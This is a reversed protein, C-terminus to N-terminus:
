ELKVTYVASDTVESGKVTLANSTAKLTNGLYWKVTGYACVGNSAITQEVGNAFVHATLVTTDTSSKFVNGNSATITMTIADGSQKAVAYDTETKGDSYTTVTKTWLYKGDAVAPISTLWTGTPATTQSTGEQYTVETSLVVSSTGISFNTAVIDIDGSVPDFMISGNKGRMKVTGDAYVEFPSGNIGHTAGDGVGIGTTSIYVGATPDNIATKKSHISSSDITFGGITAGFAELDAVKIKAAEITKEQIVAGDLKNKAEENLATIVSRKGTENDVLILRETELTGTTIKDASLADIKANTIAADAIKATNVAGDHITASTIAGEKIKATSIQADAIKAETIQADGIKASTIAADKIKATEITANAIKGNTIQADAIMATKISASKINALDIDAKEAVLEEVEARGIYANDLNAFKADLKEVEANVADLDKIKAYLIDAEDVKMRKLIADKATFLDASLREVQKQVPGKVILSSETESEGKASISTTLGGDYTHTLEFCPVIHSTGDIDTFSICDWPEIRPDGLALQIEGPKFSYGVTNEVFANFLEATMYENSLTLVPLGETYATEPVANGDDDTYESAAVVKIGSLAYSYDNFSPASITYDGNYELASATSYKSIVIRGEGDETAFGGLVSTIVELIERCTLGNLDKTITGALTVGKTIIAVGTKSTIAAALKALTKEAPLDPLVNLKSSIRGVADFSTQNASRKPKSVTFYGQNTYEVTGDDLLLGIQLLLEENEIYASVNSLEANIYSAFVTGPSFSEACAGKRVVVKKVECDLPQGNKLFRARFTRSSRKVCENFATSTTIM